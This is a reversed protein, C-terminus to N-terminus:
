GHLEGNYKFELLGKENMEITGRKYFRGIVQLFKLPFGEGDNVFEVWSGENLNIFILECCNITHVSKIIGNEIEISYQLDIQNRNGSIYGGKIDKIHLAVGSDLFISDNAWDCFIPCEKGSTLLNDQYDKHYDSMEILYLKSVGDENIIQYKDLYGSWHVSRNEPSGLLDILEKTQFELTNPDIGYEELLPHSPLINGEISLTDFM